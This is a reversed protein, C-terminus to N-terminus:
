PADEAKGEDDVIEADVVDGRPLAVGAADAALFLQQLRNGDYSEMIETPKLQHQVQLAGGDAGTLEVRQIPIEGLAKLGLDHWSEAAQALAKMEAPNMPSIESVHGGEEMRVNMELDIENLRKGILSLGHRAAKYGATDLGISDRAISSIRRKQRVLVVHNQFAMRKETWKCERSMERLSSPPIDYVRAMEALSLYTRQKLGDDLVGEVYIEEIYPWNYIKFDESDVYWTGLGGTFRNRVEEPTLPIPDSIPTKGDLKLRQEQFALPNGDADVEVIEIRTTVGSRKTTREYILPEIIEIDGDGPETEVSEVDDDLVEDVLGEDEMTEM